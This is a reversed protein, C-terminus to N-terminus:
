RLLQLLLGLQEAVRFLVACQLDLLLQVLARIGALVDVFQHIFYEVGVDGLRM